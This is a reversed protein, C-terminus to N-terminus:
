FSQVLSIFARTTKDMVRGKLGEHTNEHCSNCLVQLDKMKERGLREYTLHHVSLEQTSGCIQCAKGYHLFAARRKAKWEKSNIYGDYDFSAAGSYVCYAIWDKRLKKRQRRERREAKTRKKNPTRKNQVKAYAADAQLQAEINGGWKPYSDKSAM